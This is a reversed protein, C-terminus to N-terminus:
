IFIFFFHNVVFSIFLNTTIKPSFYFIVGEDEDILASFEPHFEISLRSMLLCRVIQWLLGLCAAPSFSSSSPVLQPPSISGLKMQFVRCINLLYGVNQILEEENKPNGILNKEDLFGPRIRNLVKALVFPNVLSLLSSSMSSESPSPLLPAVDADSALLHRLYDAYCRVEEDM